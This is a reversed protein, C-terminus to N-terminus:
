AAIYERRLRAILLKGVGIMPQEIVRYSLLACAYTILAAVTFGFFYAAIGAYSTSQTHLATPLLDVCRLVAYHLLYASFSVKGMSAMASNVFFRSGGSLALVFGMLPLCAALSGPVPPRDGIYQGVPLYTLFWFVGISILALATSHRAVVPGFRNGKRLAFFLVGGLAFVSLQNPFWFFLFNRTATTGYAAILVSAAVLNAFAGIAISAILVVVARKLSTVLMAFFPFLVYFTFEVSISWGGPVVLWAGAVTPTWVPHWANVFVAAKVAQLLEFGGAPPRLWFYLLGGAYYAPAIRFFRRIFFAPIDASGAKAVEAHWSMLLTVCSVLFFLQVGFWGSTVVRKVPYALGPYAYALHCAIVMLVAYGRACDIFLYHPKGAPHASM